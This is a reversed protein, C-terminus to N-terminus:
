QIKGKPHKAWWIRDIEEKRKTRWYFTTQFETQTRLREREKSSPSSAELRAKYHALMEEYRQGAKTGVLTNRIKQERDEPDSSDWAFQLLHDIAAQRKEKLEPRAGCVSGDTLSRLSMLLVKTMELSNYAVNPETGTLRQQMFEKHALTQLFQEFKGRFQKAGCTTCGKKTCFNELIVIDLLDDISGITNLETMSKERYTDAVATASFATRCDSIGAYINIGLKIKRRDFDNKRAGTPNM